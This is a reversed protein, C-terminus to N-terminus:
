CYELDPWAGPIAREPHDIMEWFEIFYDEMVPALWFRWDEPDPGYTFHILRAELWRDDVWPEAKHYDWYTYERRASPSELARNEEEGYRILDVGSAKLQKLWFHLLESCKLTSVLNIYRELNHPRDFHRYFIARLFELMPTRGSITLANLDSGGHVLDHILNLCDELRTGEDSLVGSLLQGLHWAALHLLTNNEHDRISCISKDIVRGKLVIRVLRSMHAVVSQRCIELAFSTCEQSSRQQHTSNSAQLIWAFAEANGNFFRMDRYIRGDEFPDQLEVDKSLFQM